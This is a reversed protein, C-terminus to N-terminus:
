RTEYGVGDAILRLTQRALLTGEADRAVRTLVILATHRDCSLAVSDSMSTVAATLHDEVAAPGLGADALLEALDPAADEDLAPLLTQPVAIQDLATRSGSRRLTRELTALRVSGFLTAEERTADRSASRARYVEFLLPAGRDDILGGFGGPETAPTAAAEPKAVLTGRGPKRNLLGMTELTMLARRMTGQSVGFEEALVFENPLRLGVAWDGQRIRRIMEAEATKYLPTRAM